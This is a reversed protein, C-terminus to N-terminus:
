VRHCHRGGGIDRFAKTVLRVSVRDDGFNGVTQVPLLNFVNTFALAFLVETIPVDVGMEVVLYCQFGFRIVLCMVSYVWVELFRRNSRFATLEQLVRLGKNVGWSVPRKELRLLPSACRAAFRM